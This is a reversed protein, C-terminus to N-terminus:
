MSPAIANVFNVLMVVILFIGAVIGANIVFNEVNYYISTSPTYEMYAEIERENEIFMKDAYTITNGEEEYRVVVDYVLEDEQQTEIYFKEFPTM